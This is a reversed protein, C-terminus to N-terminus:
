ASKCTEELHDLIQGLRMDLSEILAYYAAKVARVDFSEPPKAALQAPRNPPMRGSFMTRDEVWPLHFPLTCMISCRPLSVSTCRSRLDPRQDHACAALGDIKRSFFYKCCRVFFHQM